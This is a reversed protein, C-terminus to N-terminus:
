EEDELGMDNILMIAVEEYHEKDTMEHANQWAENWTLLGKQYDTCILCM